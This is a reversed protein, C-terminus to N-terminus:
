LMTLLQFYSLLTDFWKTTLKTFVNTRLVFILRLYPKVTTVTKLLPVPKQKLLIKIKHKNKQQRSCEWVRNDTGAPYHTLRHTVLSVFGIFNKVLLYELTQVQMPTVVQTFISTSTLGSAQNKNLVNSFCGNYFGKQEIHLFKNQRPCYASTISSRFCAAQVCSLSRPVSLHFYINKFSRPASAIWRHFVTFVAAPSGEM